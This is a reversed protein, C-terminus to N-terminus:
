GGRDGCFVHPQRVIHACDSGASYSIQDRDPAIRECIGLNQTVNCHDHLGADDDLCRTCISRLNFWLRSKAMIQM